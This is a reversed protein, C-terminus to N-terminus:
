RTFDSPLVCLIVVEKRNMRHVPDELVMLLHTSYQLTQSYVRFYTSFMWKFRLRVTEHISLLKCLCRGSSTETPPPGLNIIANCLVSFNLSSFFVQRTYVNTCWESVMSSLGEQSAALKAAVWSSGLMKHFGSTWWRTSMLGGGIGIRLWISGIGVM